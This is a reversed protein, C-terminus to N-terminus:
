MPDGDGQLVKSDRMDIKSLFPRLEEKAALVKKLRSRFVRVVDLRPSTHAIRYRYYRSIASDGRGESRGESSHYTLNIKNLLGSFMLLLHRRCSEDKVKLIISKLLALEALQRRDFLQEITMVDSNSPLIIGKPYPLRELAADIDANTKPRKKSFESVVWNFNEVMAGVDVGSALTEVVFKSLPNIDIHIAQRGLILAELFTVGSGGFPDLVLDGPRTFTDIYKQM